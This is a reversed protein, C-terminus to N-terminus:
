GLYSFPAFMLGSWLTIIAIILAGIVVAFFGVPGFMDFLGRLRGFFDTEGGRM